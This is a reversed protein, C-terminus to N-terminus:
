INYIRKKGNEWVILFENGIKHSFLFPYFVARPGLSLVGACYFQHPSLFRGFFIVSKGNGVRKKCPIIRWLRLKQSLKGCSFNEREAFIIGKKKTTTRNKSLGSPVFQEEKKCVLVSLLRIRDLIIKNKPSAFNGKLIKIVDRERERKIWDMIIIGNLM